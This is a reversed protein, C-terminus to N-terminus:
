LGFSVQNGGERLLKPAKMYPTLVMPIDPKKGDLLEKVTVIQVVPFTQQTVPHTYYGAEGAAKKMGPTADKQLILVGLQASSSSVTGALDRVMAPGIQQGGKVSVVARGTKEKELQFRVIGDIGSDGVQKENPTGDVLSVAWREFEFPSRDFLAAAGSVDRPIGRMEYPKLDAGHTDKLRTQILDIAIFTIDIGIWKRGLKEAADVTTGCGCFPDLVLDGPNSSAEIIRELLAVPKQTPYGLREKHGGSLSKIDTWVSQVPSGKAEKLYHKQRAYGTSSYYLRNDDHLSQMKERAYRWSRTHGNWDYTPNGKAEGGPATLPKTMYPGRGDGDDYKYNEAVYDPDYEGFLANWTTNSSKGYFLLVDQVRGYHKSGQGQDNHSGYRKWVIENIFNKAGFISDLILKLYHSATPDCHLYLSGTSKLVRQLEVLRPTMMTLYALVDNTGVLGRIAELATAPGLPLGGGVLLDYQHAVEPSWRWTDEFAEIQAKAEGGEENKFLVSYDRNSNFPPDLYVLDVLEDPFSKLVELNDGYILLNKDM